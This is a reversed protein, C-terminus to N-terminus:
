SSVYMCGTAKAISEGVNAHARRLREELATVSIGLARAKDNQTFRLGDPRVGLGYQALVADYQEDSLRNVQLNILRIREPMEYCLIRHGGFITCSHGKATFQKVRFWDFKGDEDIVGAIASQSPYSTWQAHNELWHGWSELSAIVHRWNFEVMANLSNESRWLM